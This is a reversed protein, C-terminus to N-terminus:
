NLKLERIVQGGLVQRLKDRDVAAKNSADMPTEPWRSVSAGDSDHGNMKTTSIRGAAPL